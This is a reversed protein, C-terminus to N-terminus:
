MNAVRRFQELLNRPLFTLITYKSTVVQNTPYVHEKKITKKGNKKLDFFELPLDHQVYITRPTPPPRARQFLKSLDFNTLEKWRNGQKKPAM